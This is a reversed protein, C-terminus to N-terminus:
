RQPRAGGSKKKTLNKGSISKLECVKIQPVIINRSNLTIILQQTLLLISNMQFNKSFLM